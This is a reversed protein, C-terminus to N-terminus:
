GDLVEGRISRLKLVERKPDSGNLVVGTPTTFLEPGGRNSKLHGSWGEAHDPGSLVVGTLADPGNLVERAGQDTWSMGSLGDM